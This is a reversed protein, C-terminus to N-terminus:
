ERTRAFEIVDRAPIYLAARFGDIFTEYAFVIGVITTSGPMVVPSGSSGPQIDAKMRSFSKVIGGTKDEFEPDFYNDTHNYFTGLIYTLPALRPHGYIALTDGFRIPAVSEQNLVYPERTRLVEDPVTLFCVDTVASIAIAEALYQQEGQRLIFHKEEGCVHRNTAIVRKYISSVDLRLYFGTGGCNPACSRPHVKFVAQQAHEWGQPAFVIPRKPADPKAVMQAAPTTPRTSRYYDTAEEVVIIGILFAFIMGVTLGVVMLAPRVLEGILGILRKLM